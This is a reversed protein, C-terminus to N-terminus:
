LDISIKKCDIINIFSLTAKINNLVRLNHYSITYTHLFSNAVWGFRSTLVIVVYKYFLIDVKIKKQSSNIKQICVCKIVTFFVFVLDFGIKYRLRSLLKNTSIFYVQVLAFLISFRFGCQRKRAGDRSDVWLQQFNIILILSILRGVGLYIWCMRAFFVFHKKSKEKRKFKLLYKQKRYVSRKPKRQKQKRRKNKLVKKLRESETKLPVNFEHALKKEIYHAIAISSVFFFSSSRLSFFLIVVQLVRSNRQSERKLSFSFPWRVTHTAHTRM